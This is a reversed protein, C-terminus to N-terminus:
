SNFNITVSGDDKKIINATKGTKVPPKVEIIAAISKHIDDNNKKFDVNLIKLDENSGYTGAVKIGAQRGNIIASFIFGREERLCSMVEQVLVQLNRIIEDKSVQNDLNIKQIDM